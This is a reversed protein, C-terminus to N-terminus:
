EILRFSFYDMYTYSFKGSRFIFPTKYPIGHLPLGLVPATNPVLVDLNCEHQVVHVISICTRANKKKKKKCRECASESQTRINM